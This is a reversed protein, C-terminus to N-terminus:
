KCCNSTTHGIIFSRNWLETLRDFDGFKDAMKIAYWLLVLEQLYTPVDCRNSTCNCLYKVVGTMGLYYMRHWDFVAKTDISSEADNNHLPLCEVIIYFLGNKFSAVSSDAEKM